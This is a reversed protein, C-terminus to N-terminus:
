AVASARAEPEVTQESQLTQMTEKAVSRIVFTNLSQGRIKAAKKALELDRRTLFRISVSIRPKPM